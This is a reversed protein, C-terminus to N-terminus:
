NKTNGNMTKKNYELFRIVLNREEEGCDALYSIVFYEWDYKVNKPIAMEDLSVNLYEGIKLFTEVGMEKKGNEIDSMHSNSINIAEALQSQTLSRRERYFRIREGLIEIKDM